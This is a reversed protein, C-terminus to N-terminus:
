LKVEVHAKRRLEDIWVKTQKEMEEGFLQERLQEKIADFPRASERKLEAVQFLHLGRPGRIPGRVENEAMAFLVEEWETPLEGRKYWGLDGGGPKTAPDESNAKALTTFDEGGRARALLDSARRQADKELEPSPKDPLAILLHRVRIETVTNSQGAIRDYRAKIDADSVQVRPRVLVSVARMRLIQKKVDSRYEAMSVGQAALAQTLQTDTVRNQRKIEEVARNVEADNVELKAESAAQTVLEEDVMQEVMQRVAQRWKQQRQKADATPEQEQLLATAKQAVESELIVADNVVAAVREIVIAKKVPDAAAPAPTAQALAVSPVFLLPLLARVLIPGPM